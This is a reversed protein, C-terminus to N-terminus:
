TKNYYDATTRHQQPLCTPRIHSSMSVNLILSNMVYDSHTFENTQGQADRRESGTGGTGHTGEM